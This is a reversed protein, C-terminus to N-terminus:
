IYNVETILNIGFKNKVDGMITDALRIVDSGAAGGKNVLVLAQKDYVAVPGLSRGKWGAQEILWGAPVKVMGDPAPYSPIDLYERKLEEFQAAPIVPNMFFSGANGLVKPDPLKGARIEM